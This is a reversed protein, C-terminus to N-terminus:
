AVVVTMIGLYIMITVVDQIITAVPGTGFAPDIRMRSLAWPLLLGLSSALTGSLLLSAAVGLALAASEFLYWVGLFAIAAMVCGIM